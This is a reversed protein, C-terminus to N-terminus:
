PRRRSIQYVKQSTSLKAQDMVRRLNPMVVAALILIVAVVIMIEVLTFGKKQNTGMM